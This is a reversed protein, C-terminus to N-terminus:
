GKFPYTRHSICTPVPRCDSITAGTPASAAEVKSSAAELVGKVDASGTIHPWIQTYLGGEAPSLGYLVSAITVPPTTGFSSTSSSADM